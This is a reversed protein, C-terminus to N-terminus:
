QLTQQELNLSTTYMATGLTGGWARWWGGGLGWWGRGSGSSNLLRKSFLEGKLAWTEHARPHLCVSQLRSSQSRRAQNVKAWLWPMRCLHKPEPRDCQDQQPPPSGASSTSNAVLPCCVAPSLALWDKADNFEDKLGALWLRPCRLRCWNWSTHSQLFTNTCRNERDFLLSACALHAADSLCGVCLMLPLTRYSARSVRYFGLCTSVDADAM